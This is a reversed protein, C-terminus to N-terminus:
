AEGRKRLRDAAKADGLRRHAHSLALLTQVAVTDRWFDVLSRAQDLEKQLRSIKELLENETTIKREM